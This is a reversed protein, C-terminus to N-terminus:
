QLVIRFVSTSGSIEYTVVLLPEGTPSSAAPIFELGEPGLDGADAFDDLNDEDFEVSFDRTDQAYTCFVPKRPDTVDYIMIGGVRELGIFAYTKGDVEGVTVGEPEPGKDDSRNDGSDNETNDSNFNEGLVDATIREFDDESDFVLGGNTNWVSFSRAGYAFLRHQVTVTMDGLPIEVAGSPPATTTRLRGLDENGQMTALNNSVVIDKVRTEESFGDYDRADGENASIIFAKGKSEVIALGDPQYMGSVRWNDIEIGDRNSPDFSNKLAMHNKYGLGFVKTVTATAIDIEAMANNEQLVVYATASDSMVALYEPELDQAISAGPGFIRIGAAAFANEMGNFAQFGATSVDGQTVSAEGGSVDIISVSGEPDFDYDDNPQGENSTLVKNGDPTYVLQDPLAGVTVQSLLAFTTTEYFAVVGPGTDDEGTPISAAVVGGGPRVDVHTVSNGLASVDISGVYVPSAPDALSFVDIGEEGPGDRDIDFSNTVFVRNTLVDFSGIESAGEDFLEDEMGIYAPNRVSSLHELAIDAQATGSVALALIFIISNELKM